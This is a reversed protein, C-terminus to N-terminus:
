HVVGKINQLSEATLLTEGNSSSYIIELTFSEQEREFDDRLGIRTNAVSRAEIIADLNIKTEHEVLYMPVETAMVLVEVGLMSLIILLVLIALFVPSYLHLFVNFFSFPHIYQVELPIVNPSVFVGM